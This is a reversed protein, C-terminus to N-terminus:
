RSVLAQVPIYNKWDPLTYPPLVILLKTRTSALGSLSPPLSLIHRNRGLREGMSISWRGMQRDGDMWAETQGDMSGDMYKNVSM